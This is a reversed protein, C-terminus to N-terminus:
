TTKRRSSEGARWIRPEFALHSPPPRHNGGGAPSALSGDWIDGCDGINAARFRHGAGAAYSVERAWPPATTPGITGFGRFVASGRRCMPGQHPVSSKRPSRSGPAPHRDQGVSCGWQRSGSPHCTRIPTFRCRSLSFRPRTSPPLESSGSSWL